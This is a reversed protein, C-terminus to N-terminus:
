VFRIAILVCPADCVQSLPSWSGQWGFELERWHLDHSLAGAADPTLHTRRRKELILSPHSSLEKQDGNYSRHLHSSRNWQEWVQRLDTNKKRWYTGSECEGWDSHKKHRKTYILDSPVVPIGTSQPFAAWSRRNHPTKLNHFKIGTSILLVVHQYCLLM